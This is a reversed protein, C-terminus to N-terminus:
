LDGGQGNRRLRASEPMWEIKQGVTAFSYLYNDAYAFYFPVVYPQTGRTCGLRGFHMHIVLNLNDEKTLEQILM